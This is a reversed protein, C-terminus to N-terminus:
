EDLVFRAALASVLLFLIDLYALGILPQIPIVGSLSEQVTGSGVVVYPIWLPLALVPLLLERARAQAAVAAFLSGLTAMGVVALCVTAFVVPNLPAGLMLASAPLLILECLILVLAAALAKGAMLGAPSAPSLLMADLSGQERDSAFARSFALLGLFVLVLWLVGLGVQARGSGGPDFAFNAILLALVMFQILSPTLERGRFEVRLDREAVAWVVTLFRM